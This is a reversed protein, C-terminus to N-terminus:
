LRDPNSRGAQLRPVSLSGMSVLRRSPTGYRISPRPLGPNPPALNQAAAGGALLLGALIIATLRRGM